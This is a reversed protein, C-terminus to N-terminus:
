NDLGGYWHTSRFLYFCDDFFFECFTAFLDVEFYNRVGFEELFAGGDFVEHGGVPHNDTHFVVPCFFTM